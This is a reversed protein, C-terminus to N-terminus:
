ARLRMLTLRASSLVVRYGARQAWVVYAPPSAPPIGNGIELWPYRERRLAALFPGPRLYLELRHAVFPGVFGVRNRLRPGFLRGPLEEGATDWLGTVGVRSGPAAHALLYSVTQDAGPMPARALVRQYHYAALLGLALVVAIRGTPRGPLRGVRFALAVAILVLASILLRGAGVPLLKGLESITAIALALCLLLGLM